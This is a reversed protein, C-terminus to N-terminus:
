LELALLLAFLPIVRGARHVDGLGEIVFRPRNLSVAVGAEARVRLRGAAPWGLAAHTSLAYWPAREVGRTAGAARGILQGALAGGCLSAALWGLARTRCAGLAASWGVFDARVDAPLRQERGLLGTARAEISLAALPVEIGAVGALASGPLLLPQVGAGLLLAVRPWPKARDSRASTTPPMTSAPTGDPVQAVKRDAASAPKVDASSPVVEPASGPTPPGDIALEVGPGFALALVLTISEILTECDRAELRRAGRRGAQETNLIAQYSSGRTAVVVRARLPELAFGPRVRAIRELEAHIADRSACTRPAQWTLELPLQEQAQARPCILWFLSLWVCHRV